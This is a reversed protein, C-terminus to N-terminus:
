SDKVASQMRRLAERHADAFDGRRMREEFLRDNREKEWQEYQKRQTEQERQNLLKSRGYEISQRVAVGRMMNGLVAPSSASPLLSERQNNNNNNGTPIVPTGARLEQAVSQRFNAM